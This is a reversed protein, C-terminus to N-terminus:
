SVEAIDVINQILWEVVPVAVANGMQKYRASDSQGATWDDPFGQLRECEVPTLRRVTGENLLTQDNATAITLSKDDSILPGKGGGPKGERMRMLMPMNNGGTGMRAQLTNIVGGQLRVDDVRNGYFIIVTTRIDGNDFANLTPMVGGEIWTEYDEENQARRSKTFWLNTKQLM